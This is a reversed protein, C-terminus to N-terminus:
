RAYLDGFIGQLQVLHRGYIESRFLTKKAYLHNEQEITGNTLM